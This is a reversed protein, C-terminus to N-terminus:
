LNSDKILESIYEALTGITRFPSSKRSIAKESILRIPKEFHTEIKQEVAIIFSVLILSNITTGEGLLPTNLSKEFIGDKAQSRMEDVIPYIFKESIESTNLSHPTSNM